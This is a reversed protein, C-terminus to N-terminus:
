VPPSKLGSGTLVVVTTEEPLIAGAELLRTLGAVAVASTPEALLGRRALADRASLIESERVAVAAGHSEHLADLMQPLRLPDRIATGEAVTPLVPRSPRGDLSVGTRVAASAAPSSAAPSSAAPSSAAEFAAVVPSCNLPQAAYLRPLRDISGSRLLERFGFACGLLSSGAGVPLVVSDPARFGLDEWIEYALTKTGELFWAQWNHSAYFGQGADAAAIAAHQSAERPGEVLEVRAGHARAQVLKAPSTSVPAFVTVDIGGAAGYCAVSAGGNGSSDEIVRDVGQQRLVSLMVSSGRDKFSGSPSFWELKCRVRAGGWEVDVLPTCGEGLTIPEAVAVPLAAGYRWMSRRSADIDHMGIGPQPTILLPGGSEARWRPQDLPYRTGTRPDVYAPDTGPLDAGPLDAGAPDGSTVDGSPEDAPPAAAEVM